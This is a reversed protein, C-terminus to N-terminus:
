TFVQFEVIDSTALPQNFTVSTGDTAVFDETPILKIGNMYVGIRGVKYSVSFLTQGATPTVHTETMINAFSISGAGDTVLVQGNTGDACNLENVGVVNVNLQANSLTGTVDGSIPLDQDAFLINGAGDASLVQNATGDVCNLEIIGITNATINTAGITGTVDGSLAVNNATESVYMTTAIKTSNDNITHTVGTTTASLTGTFTGTIDIDGTGTINYNNLNLDGGLEPSTDEVVNQLKNTVDINLQNIANVISTKDTTNLLVLDGTLASITNSKVRWQNFTDVLNITIIAM